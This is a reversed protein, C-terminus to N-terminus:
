FACPFGKKICSILPKVKGAKMLIHEKPFHQEALHEKLQNLSATPLLYLKPYHSLHHDNSIAQKTYLGALKTLTM